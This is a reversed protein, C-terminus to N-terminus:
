RGGFWASSNQVKILCVSAPNHQMDENAFGGTLLPCSGSHSMTEERELRIKYYLYNINM